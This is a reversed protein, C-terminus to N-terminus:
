CEKWGIIYTAMAEFPAIAMEKGDYWGRLVRFFLTAGAVSNKSPLCSFAGNSLLVHMQNDLSVGSVWQFRISFSCKEKLDDLTEYSFVSSRM